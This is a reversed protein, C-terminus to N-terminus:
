QLVSPIIIAFFMANGIGHIIVGPWLSRTKQCLYPVLLSVPLLSILSWRMFFHFVVNWMLGNILWAWKGFYLEMRPLAYGRWLLEECGVNIVLWIAWFWIAFMNGKLEIDMFSQLPIAVEFDPKFLNPFYEPVSFGPLTSLVGRTSALSFEGIQVIILAVLVLLLEKGDLKKVWFFHNFRQGSKKWQFLIVLTLLLIPSWLSIFVAWYMKIGQKLMSPLLFQFILFTSMGPIGFFLVTRLWNMRRM